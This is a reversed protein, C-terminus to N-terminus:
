SPTRRQLKSTRQLEEGSSRGLNSPARARSANRLEAAGGISEVTDEVCAAGEVGTVVVAPAEELSAESVADVTLVEPGVVEAELEDVFLWYAESIPDESRNAEQEAMRKFNFMEPM